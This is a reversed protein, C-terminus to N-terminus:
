RFVQRKINLKNGTISTKVSLQGGGALLTYKSYGYIGGKKEEGGGEEGIKAKEGGRKLRKRGM